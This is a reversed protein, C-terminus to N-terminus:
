GWLNQVEKCGWTQFAHEHCKCPSRSSYWLSSHLCTTGVNDLYCRTRDHPWCSLAECRDTWPTGLGLGGATQLLAIWHLGYWDSRRFQFNAPVQFTPKGRKTAGWNWKRGTCLSTWDPPQIWRSYGAGLSNGYWNKLIAHVHHSRMNWLQENGSHERTRRHHRHFRCRRLRGNCPTHSRCVLGYCWRHFTCFISGGLHWPLRNCNGNTPARRTPPM